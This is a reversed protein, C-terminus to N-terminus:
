QHEGQKIIQHVRQRSIQYRGAIDKLTMGTERLELIEAARIIDKRGGTGQPHREAPEAPREHAAVYSSARALWDSDKYSPLTRNCAFCLLGRVAGTRHNHDVHLRRTKPTNPCLACHGDQAALLLAYREDTVGLEVARRKRPM